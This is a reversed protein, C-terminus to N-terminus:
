ERKCKGDEVCKVYTQVVRDHLRKLKDPHQPEKGLGINIVDHYGQMDKDYENACHGCNFKKPVEKHLHSWVHSEDAGTCSFGKLQKLNLCQIMEKTDKSVM